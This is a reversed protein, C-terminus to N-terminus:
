PLARHRRAGGFQPVIRYQNGDVILAGRNMALVSELLSLFEERSVPGGTSVTVRGQVRPDYIYPVALTDRLIVKTLESLEADAFNLEYGNPGRAIGAGRPTGKRPRVSSNDGPYLEAGARPDSVTAVEVAPGQHMPTVLPSIRM